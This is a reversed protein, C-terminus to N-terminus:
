FILLILLKPHTSQFYPKELFDKENLKPFMSKLVLGSKVAQNIIASEGTEMSIPSTRGEFSKLLGTISLIFASIRFGVQAFLLAPPTCIHLKKIPFHRFSTEPQRKQLLSSSLYLPCRYDRTIVLFLEEMFKGENM